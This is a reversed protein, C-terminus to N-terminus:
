EEDLLSNDDLGDKKDVRGSMWQLYEIRDDNRNKIREPNRM